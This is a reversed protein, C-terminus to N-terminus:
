APMAASSHAPHVLFAVYVHDDEKALTCTVGPCVRLGEGHTLRGSPFPKHGVREVEWTTGLTGLAASLDYAGEFLRFYGYEGELVGQPAAIGLQALAVAMVAAKANFGTQM